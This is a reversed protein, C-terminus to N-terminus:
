ASQEGARRELWSVIADATGPNTALPVGHVDCIRMLASADPEHPQAKYAAGM